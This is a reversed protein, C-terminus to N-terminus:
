KEGAPPQEDIVECAIFMNAHLTSDCLNRIFFRGVPDTPFFISRERDLFGSAKSIVM